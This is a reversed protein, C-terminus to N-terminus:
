CGIYFGNFDLRDALSRMAAPDGTASSSALLRLLYRHRERWECSLECLAAPDAAGHQLSAYRLMLALQRWVAAAALRAQRGGGVLVAASAHELFRTHAAAADDVTRAAALDQELRAAVGGALREALHSYIAAAAAAMEAGLIDGPARTRGSLGPVSRRRAREVAHRAWAVQLLFALVSNYQPLAAEAVIPSLPWALASHLRLRTVADLDASHGAGPTDAAAEQVSVSLELRCTSEADGALRGSGKANGPQSCESHEALMDDLLEQVDAALTGPLAAVSASPSGLGLGLGTGPEPSAGSRALRAVELRELLARAFAQMAPSLLFFAGRLARLMAHLQGGATLRALLAAGALEAALRLPRRLAGELLVELPVGRLPHPGSLWDAGPRAAAPQAAAAWLQEAVSGSFAQVRTATCARWGLGDCAEGSAPGAMAGMLRARWADDGVAMRAAIDAGTPAGALHMCPPSQQAHVECLQAATAIFHKHLKGARAGRPRELSTHGLSDSARLLLAAKGAALLEPALEVVFSPAAAGVAAGSQRPRLRFAQRWFGPANPAVDAGAAIFFEAHTAPLRGENVWAEIASLLPRAAHLFLRLLVGAEEAGQPTGRAAASRLLAHQADLLGAAREAAAEAAGGVAVVADTAASAALALLELRRMPARTAAELALLSTSGGGEAAGACAALGALQADVGRLEIERLRRTTAGAAAFRQLLRLLAGPSLHPVHVGPAAGLCGDPGSRFASGPESCGRLLHLVQMVLRPPRAGSNCLRAPEPAGISPDALAPPWQAAPAAEGTCTESVGPLASATLPVPESACSDGWDSLSGGSGAGAQEGWDSQEGDSPAGEKGAAAADGAYSTNAQPPLTHESALPRGALSLLLHLARAHAEPAALNDSSLPAATFRAQLLALARAKRGQNHEVLRLALGRYEKDVASLNTDLYGHVQTHHM